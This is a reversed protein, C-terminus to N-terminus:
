GVGDEKVELILREGEHYAKIEVHGKGAKERIGHYIANEVIPQLILKPVEIDTLGDELSIDYSLEDVYREMQILLYQEVYDVEEGLTVMGEDNRLAMRLLHSLAKTVKIVKKTNGFESLWIITDLTNYLFHPNIQSQLATLEYERLQTEQSKIGEMLERIRTLMGNYHETLKAVEYTGQEPVEVKDLHEDIAQMAMQLSVLPKSTRDSLRSSIMIVPLLIIVCALIMTQILQRRLFNVNDLSSLGVLIWDSHGIPTKFTMLGMDSEYGSGLECILVLENAKDADEFYAVDPHYVVSGDLTIIFAYGKEGLNLQDIYREFSRYDLDILLVGLHEGQTDVIETTVSIVWEEKDMSFESRRASILKPMQESELAEQYWLTDMMDDELSMLMEDGAALAKGQKSILAIRLIQDDTNEIQWLMQSLAKVRPSKGDNLVVETDEHEAIITSVSHVRDLYAEIYDGSGMVAEETKEFGDRLLISSAIMYFFFALILVTSIVMGITMLTVQRHLKILPKMKRSDKAM